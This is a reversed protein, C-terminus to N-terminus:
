NLPRQIKRSNKDDKLLMKDLAANLKALKIIGATTDYDISNLLIEIVEVEAPVEITHLEQM